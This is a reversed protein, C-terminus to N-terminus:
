EKASYSEDLLINCFQIYRNDYNVVNSWIQIIIAKRYLFQNQNDFIYQKKIWQTDTSFRLFFLQISIPIKSRANLNQRVLELILKLKRLYRKTNNPLTFLLRPSFYMHILFSKWISLFNLDEVTDLRVVVKLKRKISRLCLLLLLM